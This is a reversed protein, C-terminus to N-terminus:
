TGDGEFAKPHLYRSFQELAEVIRPGFRGSLDADIQYVRGSKRADVNGIRPESKVWALPLDKANGHGSNVIIVSPNRALVEELGLIGWGKHDGAVNVGGAKEILDNIIIGSGAVWLPDHWAVYLVTPKGGPEIRGALNTVTRIRTEMEGILSATEKEKGTVTGVMRITHIADALTEPALVIISLGKKELKRVIGKKDSLSDAVLLDPCLSIIKEIDPNGFGGVKDKVLAEPPFNCYSTVGVVREGLGLSFLIETNSPALSVIREPFSKVRVKRGADDITECYDLGPDAVLLRSGALLICLALLFVQLFFRLGEYSGFLLKNKSKLEKEQRLERTM